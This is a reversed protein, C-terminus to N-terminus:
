ESNQAVCLLRYGLTSNFGVPPISHVYNKRERNAESALTCNQGLSMGSERFADISLTEPHCARQGQGVSRGRGEKCPKGGREEKWELQVSLVKLKEEPKWKTRQRPVCKSFPRGSRLRRKGLGLHM